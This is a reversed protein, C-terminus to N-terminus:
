LMQGYPVIMRSLMLLSRRGVVHKSLPVDRWLEVLVFSFLYLEIAVCSMQLDGLLLSADDLSKISTYTEM